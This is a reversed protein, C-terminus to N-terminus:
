VLSFFHHRFFPIISLAAASFFSAGAEIRFMSDYSNSQIFTENAMIEIADVNSFALKCIHIMLTIGFSTSQIPLLTTALEVIGGVSRFPM